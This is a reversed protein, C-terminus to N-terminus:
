WVRTRGTDIHVFNSSAYYGVGGRGLTRAADRLHGLKVGPVRIDIAKGSMHLSGSAVGTSAKALTANTLPARFGSIVQYPQQTELKDGLAHLLDLLAPDIAHATNARHDRLVWGIERAADSLYQGGDWYTAKLREGTHLNEFALSRPPSAAAVHKPVLASAALAFGGTLIRRRSTVPLFFRQSM